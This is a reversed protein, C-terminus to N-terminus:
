QQPIIHTSINNKTHPLSFDFPSSIAKHLDREGEPVPEIRVHGKGLCELVYIDDGCGVWANKSLQAIHPSTGLNQNVLSFPNDYDIYTVSRPEPVDCRNDGIPTVCLNRTASDRRLEMETVTGESCSM